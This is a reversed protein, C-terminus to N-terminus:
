AILVRIVEMGYTRRFHISHSISIISRVGDRGHVCHCTESSYNQYPERNSAQHRTSFYMESCIVKPPKLHM